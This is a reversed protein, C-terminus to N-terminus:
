ARRVLGRLIQGVYAVSCVVGVREALERYTLRPDAAHLERIQAAQELTVGTPRPRGRPKKRATRRREAPYSTQLGADRLWRYVTSPSVGLVVGVDALTRKEAYLRALEDAPPKKATVASM